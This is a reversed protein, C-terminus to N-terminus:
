QGPPASLAFCPLPSMVAMAYADDATLPTAFFYGQAAEAGIERLMAVQDATEVAEAVTCIGLSRSLEVITEVMARSTGGPVTLGAILAQDIKVTNVVCDRLNSLVSWDAGVDDVTLQIGLRAMLRLDEVAKDDAVSTETVEVTLRDPSLGSQELAAAAAVAAEGRRLQFVSCNVALQLDSSWTAAQACAESLVWANLASMHGQAEALPILTTPPIDRGSSDSWRLLAEFGLLRGTALDVAPQFALAPAGDLDLHPVQTLSTM